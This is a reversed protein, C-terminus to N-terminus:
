RGAEELLWRAREEIEARERPGHGVADWLAHLTARALAVDAVGAALGVELGMQWAAALMVRGSRAPHAVIAEATRAGLELIRAELPSM